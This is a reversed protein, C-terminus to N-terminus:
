SNSWYRGVFLRSYVDKGTWCERPVRLISLFGIKDKERIGIESSRIPVRNKKIRFFVRNYSRLWQSLTKLKYLEEGAEKYVDRLRSQQGTVKRNTM